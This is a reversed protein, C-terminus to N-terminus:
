ITNWSWTKEASSNLSPRDKETTITGYIDSFPKHVNGDHIPDPIYHLTNFIEQPLRPPKCIRCHSSGCKLISFSYHRTQCCHDLFQKLDPLKALDSKVCSIPDIGPQIQALFSALTDMESSTVSTFVSFPENKLKLRQFLSCVLLKVPKLSDKLAEQVELHAVAAARIAKMNKCGEITKELEGSMKTRMLGVAQLALNLESM